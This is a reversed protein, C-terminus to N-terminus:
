DEDPLGGTHDRIIERLEANRASAERVSTLAAPDGAAYADLAEALDHLTEALPVDDEEVLAAQSAMTHILEAAEGAQAPRDEAEVLTLYGTLVAAQTSLTYLTDYTEAGSDEVPIVFDSSHEDSVTWTTASGDAGPTGTTLVVVLVTLLAPALRTLWRNM